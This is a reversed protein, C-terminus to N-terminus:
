TCWPSHSRCAPDMDWTSHVLKVVTEVYLCWCKSTVTGMLMQVM